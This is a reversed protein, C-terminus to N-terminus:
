SFLMLLTLNMGRKKDLYKMFMSIYHRAEELLIDCGRYIGHKDDSTGCALSLTQGSFM